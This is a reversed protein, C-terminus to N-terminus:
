GGSLIALARRMPVDSLRVIGGFPDDMELILFIAGFIMWRFFAAKDEAMLGTEPFTMALYTCIAANETIVKGDHV